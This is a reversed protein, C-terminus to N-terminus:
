PEGIVEPRHLEPCLDMHLDLIRLALRLRPEMNRGRSYRHLLSPDCGLTRAHHTLPAHRRLHCCIRQWDIM